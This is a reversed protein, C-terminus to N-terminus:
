PESGAFLSKSWSSWQASVGRHRRQSEPCDAMFQKVVDDTKAGTIRCSKWGEQTRQFRVMQPIATGQLLQSALARQRDFDVYAYEVDRMGGTAAIKPVVENKMVRCAPCWDAGVLVVLPRGTELSRQYASQYDGSGPTLAAAQIALGLALSLM